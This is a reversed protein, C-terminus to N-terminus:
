LIFLFKELNIIQESFYMKHRHEIFIYKENLFHETRPYPQRSIRAHMCVRILPLPLPLYLRYLCWGLCLSAPTPRRELRVM